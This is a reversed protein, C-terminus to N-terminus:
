VIADEKNPLKVILSVVGALVFAICWIQFALMYSGAWDAIYGTIAVWFMAPALFFSLLGNVRSFKAAGFLRSILVSRVPVMGGFGLGFLASAVILLTFSHGLMLAITSGIYAIVGLMVTIKSSVNDMMWGFVIKGAIAFMGAFSLLWAGDSITFELETSIYTPLHTAMASYVGNMLGFTLVVSWFAKSTLFEKYTQLVGGEPTEPISSEDGVKEPEPLGDITAGIDSPRQRVLMITLPLVLGFLLGAYIVYANRWGINEALWANAIPMFVGAVSIGMIAIGLAKGRHTSFWNVMLKTHVLPGVGTWAMGQFPILVLLLTWYSDVVQMLLYGMGMWVAACSIIIRLQFRDILYGMFPATMSGSILTVSIALSLDGRSVDFDQMWHPFFVGRAHLFFSAALFCVVFAYGMLTYGYFWPTKRM